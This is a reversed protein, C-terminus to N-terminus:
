SLTTDCLGIVGAAILKWASKPRSVPDEWTTTKNNHNIFYRRGSGKDLAMEWGDPLKMKEIDYSLQRVHQAALPSPAVSFTQQLTAPSSHARLHVASRNGLMGM